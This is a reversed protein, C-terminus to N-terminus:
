TTFKISTNEMTFLQSLAPDLELPTVTKTEEDLVGFFLQFSRTVAPLQVKQMTAATSVDTPNDVM